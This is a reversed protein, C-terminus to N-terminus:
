PKIYTQNYYDIPCLQSKSPQEKGADYAFLIQEKEKKLLQKAKEIVQGVYRVNDKDMYELLEQM